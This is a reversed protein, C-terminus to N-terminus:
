PKIRSSGDPAIFQTGSPLADYEAKSQPRAPAQPRPQGPLSPDVFIPSLDAGASEAVYAALAEEGNRYQPNARRWRQFDVYREQDMEPQGPNGMIDPEGPTGLAQLLSNQSPVTYAGGSGGGSAARPNWGGAEAQVNRLRASASSAGAAAMNRAQATQQTGVMAQGLESLEVPADTAFRDAVYAGQGMTQPLAQPASALPFLHANPNDAGYRGVAADHAQQRFGQAQRYGEGQMAQSYNNGAALLNATLAAQTTEMGAAELKERMSHRAVEADRERRAKLLKTHADAAQTVGQQYAADSNGFLNGAIRNGAAFMPGGQQAALLQSTLDAM